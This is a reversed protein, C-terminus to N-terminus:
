YQTPTGTKKSLNAQQTSLKFIGLFSEFRLYWTALNFICKRGLPGLSLTQLHSRTSSGRRFIAIVMVKLARDTQKNIHCDLSFFTNKSPHQTECGIVHGGFIGLTIWAIRWFLWSWGSSRINMRFEGYGDYEM